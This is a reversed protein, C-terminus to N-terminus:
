KKSCVFNMSYRQKNTPRSPPIDDDRSRVWEEGNYAKWAINMKELAKSCMPCPLSVGLDGEFKERTIIFEGYKRHIWASIHSNQIGQCRAERILEKLLIREACCTTSNGKGDAGYPVSVGVPLKQM